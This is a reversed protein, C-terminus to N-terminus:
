GTAMGRVTLLAAAVFFPFSGFAILVAAWAAIRLMGVPLVLVLVGANAMITRSRWGRELIATLRKNGAPGGGAVVPLLFTMAGTLIQAVVGIGLVPVLVASLVRDAQGLGAGLGAIDAGIGAILWANAALLAWAAANRPPRVRMERAAPVLSGAVGGGYGAMGAAALWRASSFIPTVLLGAVAVVLGTVTM